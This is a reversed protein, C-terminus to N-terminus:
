RHGAKQKLLAAMVRRHNTMVEIAQKALRQRWDESAGQLSQDVLARSYPEHPKPMQESGFRVRKQDDAFREPLACM